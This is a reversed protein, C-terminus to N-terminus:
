NEEYSRTKFFNINDSDCIAAAYKGGRRDRYTWPIVSTGAPPVTFAPLEIGTFFFTMMIPAPADPRKHAMSHPLRSRDTRTSSWASFVPELIRTEPTSAAIERIHIDGRVVIKGPVGVEASRCKRAKCGAIEEREDLFVVNGIVFFLCALHEANLAGSIMAASSCSHLLAPTSIRSLHRMESILWACPNVTVV